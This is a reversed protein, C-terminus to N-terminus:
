GSRTPESERSEKREMQVKEWVIDAGAFGPYIEVGLEEAQEGLWSTVQSLSVIYNGKNSMQPPHPMPFSSSSTLFRMKDELAEQHLPAGMEKWNPFLEELANTQIVAGSLIHNGSTLLLLLYPLHTPLVNRIRVNRCQKSDQGRRCNWESRFSSDKSM